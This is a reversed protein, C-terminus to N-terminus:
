GARDQRPRAFGDPDATPLLRRRAEALVTAETTSADLPQWSVPGTDRRLQALVVHADADSADGARAEVRGTLVDPPAELWVGVFPVSLRAAVTEVAARDAPQLFAADAVVGHGARLAAEAREALTEYVRASVDPTYAEPGLPQTAPVAFLAKRIADTRLVLAGPVPGIDPALGRALTSKGAGSRGGIAVLM